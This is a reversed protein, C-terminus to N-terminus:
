LRIDRRGLHQNDAKKTNEIYIDILNKLFIILM